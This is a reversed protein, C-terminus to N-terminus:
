SFHAMFPKSPSILCAVGVLEPPSLRTSVTKKEVAKASWPISADDM